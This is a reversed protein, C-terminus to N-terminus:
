VKGIIYFFCVRMYRMKSSM